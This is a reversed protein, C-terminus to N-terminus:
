IKPDYTKLEDRMAQRSPWEASNMCTRGPEGPIPATCIVRFPRGKGTISAEELTRTPHDPCFLHTGHYALQQIRRNPGSPQM